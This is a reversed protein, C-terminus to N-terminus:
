ISTCRGELCLMQDASHFNSLDKIWIKILGKGDQGGSRDLCNGSGKTNLITLSSGTKRNGFLSVKIKSLQDDGDDKGGGGDYGEDGDDDDDDDDEDSFIM